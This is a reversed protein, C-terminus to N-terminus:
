TTPTLRRYDGAVTQLILEPNPELKLETVMKFLAMADRGAKVPDRGNRRARTEAQTQIRMYPDDSNRPNFPVAPPEHHM